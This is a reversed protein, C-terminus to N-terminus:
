VCFNCNESNLKHKPTWLALILATSNLNWPYESIPAYTVPVVALLSPTRFTLM